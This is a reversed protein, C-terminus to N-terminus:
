PLRFEIRTKPGESTNLCEVLPIPVGFSYSRLREVLPIPVSFSYSRLREVL